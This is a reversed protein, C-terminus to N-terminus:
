SKSSWHACAWLSLSSHARFSVLAYFCVESSFVCVECSLSSRFSASCILLLCWCVRSPFRSRIESRLSWSWFDTSLCFFSSCSLALAFPSTLCCFISRSCPSSLLCLFSASFSLWCFSVRFSCTVWNFSCNWSLIPSKDEWISSRYFSLALYSSSILSAFVAMSSSVRSFCSWAAM